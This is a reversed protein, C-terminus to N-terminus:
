LEFLMILQFHHFCHEPMPLHTYFFESNYYLIINNNGMRMLFGITALTTTTPPTSFAVNQRGPPYVRGRLVKLTRFLSHLSRKLRLHVVGPAPIFSSHIDSYYLLLFDMCCHIFYSSRDDTPRKDEVPV